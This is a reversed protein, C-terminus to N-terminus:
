GGLHLSCGSQESGPSGRARSGSSFCVRDTVKCWVSKCGLVAPHRETVTNSVNNWDKLEPYLWLITGLWNFWYFLIWELKTILDCTKSFLHEQRSSLNIVQLITKFYMVSPLFNLTDHATKMWRNAKVQLHSIKVFKSVSHPWKM